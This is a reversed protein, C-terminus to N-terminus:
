SIIKEHNIIIALVSDPNALLLRPISDYTYMNVETRMSLWVPQAIGREQISIELLTVVIVCIIKM